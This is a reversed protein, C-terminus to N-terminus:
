LSVHTVRMGERTNHLELQLPQEEGSIKIEVSWTGPQAQYILPNHQIQITHPPHYATPRQQAATQILTQTLQPTATRHLTQIADDRHKQSREGRDLIMWSRTFRIAIHQVVSNKVPPLHDDKGQSSHEKQPTTAAVSPTSTAAPEKQIHLIVILMFTIFVTLVLVFTTQASTISLTRTHRGM